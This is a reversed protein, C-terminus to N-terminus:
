DHPRRHSLRPGGALEGLHRAFRSSYEVVSGPSSLLPSTCDSPREDHFQLPAVTPEVPAVLWPRAASMLIDHRGRRLHAAKRQRAAGHHELNEVVALRLGAEVSGDNPLWYGTGAIPEITRRARV